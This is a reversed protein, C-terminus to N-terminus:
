KHSTRHCYLALQRMNQNWFTKWRDCKLKIYFSHILPDVLKNRRVSHRSIHMYVDSLHLM